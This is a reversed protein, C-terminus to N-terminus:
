HNHMKYESYLSGIHILSNGSNEQDEKLVLANSLHEESAQPTGKIVSGDVNVYLNCWVKTSMTEGLQQSALAEM